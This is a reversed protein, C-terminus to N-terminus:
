SEYNPKNLELIIINNKTDINIYNLIRKLTINENEHRIFVRVVEDRFYLMEFYAANSKFVDIEIDKKYLFFLTEKTIDLAVSTELDCLKYFKKEPCKLQLTRSYKVNKTSLKLNQTNM